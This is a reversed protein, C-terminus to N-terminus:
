KMAEMKKVVKDTIDEGGALIAGQSFVYDIKEDKVLANVAKIFKDNLAALKTRQEEQIKAENKQIYNQFEIVKKQFAQAEADTLKDGKAELKQREIDLQQAKTNAETEAKKISSAISQNVVKTGSYANIARQVDVTAVKEAMASMSVIAGLLIISIKKM